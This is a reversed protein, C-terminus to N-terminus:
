ANRTYTTLFHVSGASFGNQTNSYWLLLDTTVTCRANQPFCAFPGGVSLVMRAHYLCNVSVPHRHLCFDLPRVNVASSSTSRTRALKRGRSKKRQPYTLYRTNTEVNDRSRASRLCPDNCCHLIDICGHQRMHPLFKFITDIHATDGTTCVDFM